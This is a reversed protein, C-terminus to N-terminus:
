INLLYQRGMGVTQAQATFKGSLLIVSVRCPFWRRTFERWRDQTESPNATSKPEVM